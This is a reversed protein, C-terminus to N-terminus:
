QGGKTLMKWGRMVSGKIEDKIVSMSSVEPADKTGVWMEGFTANGSLGDTAIVREIVKSLDDHDPSGLLATRRRQENTVQKVFRKALPRLHSVDDRTM